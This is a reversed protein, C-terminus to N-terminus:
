LSNQHDVLCEQGDLRNGMQELTEDGRVGTADIPLRQGHELPRQEHVRQGTRAAVLQPRRTQETEVAVRQALTTSLETKGQRAHRPTAALRDPRRSSGWPRLGTPWNQAPGGRM